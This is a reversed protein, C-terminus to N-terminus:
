RIDRMVEESVAMGKSKRSRVLSRNAEIGEAWFAKGHLRKLDPMETSKVDLRVLRGM